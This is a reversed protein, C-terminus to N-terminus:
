LFPISPKKKSKRYLVFKNGVTMVVEAKLKKALNNAANYSDELSNNLVTAKVLERAELAEDFQKITNESIGGKGIQFISNIDHSMKRLISREKGTLM